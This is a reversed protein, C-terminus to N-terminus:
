LKQKQSTSRLSKGMQKEMANNAKLKNILMFEIEQRSVWRTMVYEWIDERLKHNKM